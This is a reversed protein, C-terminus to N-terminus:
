SRARSRGKSSAPHKVSASKKPATKKTPRKTANKSTAKAVTKVVKKTTAKPATKVSKTAKTTKATKVTKTVKAAKVTKAPKPTSAAKSASAPAKAEKADKPEKPEKAEKSDKADKAEKAAPKPKTKTATRAKGRLADDVRLLADDSSYGEAEPSFTGPEFWSAALSETAFQRLLHCFAAGDAKRVAAKLQDSAVESTSGADVLGLWVVVSTLREDLPVVHAGLAMQHVYNRVFPSLDRIQGLKKVAQDQTKKRIFELDFEFHDEFVYQLITRIRHARLEPESQHKFVRALESISSVRIENLDHFESHLADFAQQGAEFSDNDLCVAYLLTDLVNRNPPETVRGFQKELRATLKKTLEQKDSAKM